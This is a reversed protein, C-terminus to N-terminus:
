MQTLSTSYDQIKRIVAQMGHFRDTSIQEKLPTKELFDIHAGCIEQPTRKDFLAAIVYSMRLNGTANLVNGNVCFGFSSVLAQIPFLVSNVKKFGHRGFVAAPLSTTFNASGGLALAFMILFVIVLPRKETVELLLAVAYWIGFFIMTKKTVLKQDMAGIIWSGVIGAFALITM